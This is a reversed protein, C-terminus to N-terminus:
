LSHIVMELEHFWNRRNKEGVPSIHCNGGAKPDNRTLFFYFLFVSTPCNLM